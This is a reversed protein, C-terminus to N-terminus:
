ALVFHSIDNSLGHFTYYLRFSVAEYKNGDELFNVFDTFTSM